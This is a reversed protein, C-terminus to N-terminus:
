IEDKDRAKQRSKQAKVRAIGVVVFFIAIGCNMSCSERNHVVKHISSYNQLVQAYLHKQNIKSFTLILISM